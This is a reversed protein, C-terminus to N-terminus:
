SSLPVHRLFSHMEWPRMKPSNSSCARYEPSFTTYTPLKKTKRKAKVTQLKLPLGGVLLALAQVNVLRLSLFMSPNQAATNVVELLPQIFPDQKGTHDAGMVFLIILSFCVAWSDLVPNNPPEMTEQSYAREIATELLPRTFLDTGHEERALFSDLVITLVQRSPLCIGRTGQQFHGGAPRHNWPELSQLKLYDPGTKHESEWQGNTAEAVTDLWSSLAQAHRGARSDQGFHHRLDAGLDRCLALLTWPGYYKEFTTETDRVLYGRPARLPFLQSPNAGHRHSTDNSGDQGNQLSLTEPQWGLYSSYQPIGQLALTLPNGDTTIRAGKFMSTLSSIDEQVQILRTQIEDFGECRLCVRM